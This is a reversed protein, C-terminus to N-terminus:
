DIFEKQKAPSPDPLILSGLLSISAFVSTERVSVLLNSTGPSSFASISALVIRKFYTPPLQRTHEQLSCPVQIKVTLRCTFILYDFHLKFLYASLKYDHGKLAAAILHKGTLEKDSNFNDNKSLRDQITRSPFVALFSFKWIHALTVAATSNAQM